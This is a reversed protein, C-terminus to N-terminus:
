WTVLGLVLLLTLAWLWLRAAEVWFCSGSFGRGMGVSSSSLSGVGTLGAPVFSSRMARSNRLILLRLLIRVWDLCRGWVAVVTTASSSGIGSTGTEIVGILSRVRRKLRLKLFMRELELPTKRSFSPLELGLVLV